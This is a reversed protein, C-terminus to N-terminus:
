FGAFRRNGSAIGGTLAMVQMPHADDATVASALLLIVRLKQWESEHAQL